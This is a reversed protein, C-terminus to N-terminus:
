VGAEKKKYSDLEGEVSANCEACCSSDGPYVQYAYRKMKKGCMKCTCITYENM